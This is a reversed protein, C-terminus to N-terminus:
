CVEFGAYPKPVHVVGENDPWTAFMVEFMEQLVEDAKVAVNLESHFLFLVTM